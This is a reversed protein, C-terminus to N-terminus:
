SRKLRCCCASRLLRSRRLTIRAAARSSCFAAMTLGAPRPPAPRPPLRARRSAGGVLKQTPCGTFPRMRSVQPSLHNKTNTPRDDATIIASFFPSKTEGSTFGARLVCSEHCFSTPPHHLWDSSAMIQSRPGTVKPFYHLRQLGRDGTVYFSLLSLLM